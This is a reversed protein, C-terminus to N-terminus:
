PHIFYPKLPIVYSGKFSMPTKGRKFYTTLTHLPLKLPTYLLTKLTHRLLNYPYTFHPKLTNLTPKSTPAKTHYLIRVVYKTHSAFCKTDCVFYKYVFCFISDCVFYKYVFYKTHWLLSFICFTHKDYIYKKYVFYKYVFYIQICFIKYAMPSQIYSLCM